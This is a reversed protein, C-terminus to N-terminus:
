VWRQWYLAMPSVKHGCGAYSHLGADTGTNMHSRILIAGLKDEYHSNGSPYVFECASTTKSKSALRFCLPALACLVTTQPQRGAASTAAHATHGVNAAQRVSGRVRQHPPGKAPPRRNVHSHHFVHGSTGGPLPALPSLAPRSSGYWRVFHVRPAGKAMALCNHSDRASSLTPVSGGGWGPASALEGNQGLVAARPM